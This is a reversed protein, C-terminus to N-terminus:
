YRATRRIVPPGPADFQTITGDSARIFGHFGTQIDLDQFYGIIVGDGSIKSVIYIDGPPPVDFSTFTGDSTQLFGHILFNSDEYMGAVNGQDNM